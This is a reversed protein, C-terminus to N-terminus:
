GNGTQYRKLVGKANKQNKKKKIALKKHTNKNPLSVNQSLNRNNKKITAVINRFHIWHFRPFYTLLCSFNSNIKRNIKMTKEKKIKTCVNLPKKKVNQPSIGIYVIMYFQKIGM